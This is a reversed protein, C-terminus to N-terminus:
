LNYSAIFSTNGYDGTNICKPYWSNFKFGPKFPEPPYYSEDEITYQTKPNTFNGGNLEYSIGYKIPIYLFNFHQNPETLVQGEPTIYGPINKPLIITGKKAKSCFKGLKHQDM